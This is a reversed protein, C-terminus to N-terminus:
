FSKDKEQSRSYGEGRRMEPSKGDCHFRDDLL